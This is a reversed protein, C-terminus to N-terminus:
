SWKFVVAHNWFMASKLIVSKKWVRIKKKITMEAKKKKESLTVYFYISRTFWISNTAWMQTFVTRLVVTEFAPQSFCGFDDNVKLVKCWNQWLTQTKQTQATTTTKKLKRWWLACGFYAYRYTNEVVSNSHNYVERCIYQIHRSTWNRLQDLWQVPENFFCSWWSDTHSGLGVQSDTLTAAFCSSVQNPPPDVCNKKKKSPQSQNGADM